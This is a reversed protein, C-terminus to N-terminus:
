ECARLTFELSATPSMESSIVSKLYNEVPLSNVARVKGDEIFFHLEGEFTQKQAREWHFNIGIIVNHLTFRCGNDTPSFVLREVSGGAFRVGGDSAAVFYEGDNIPVGNCM